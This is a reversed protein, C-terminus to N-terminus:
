SISGLNILLTIRVGIGVAFHPAATVMPHERRQGGVAALADVALVSGLVQALTTLYCNLEPEISSSYFKPAGKGRESFAFFIKLYDM